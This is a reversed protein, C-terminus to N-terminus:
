AGDTPAEPAELAENLMRHLREMQEQALRQGFISAGFVLSTGLLSVPIGWFGIPPQDIIMQSSGFIAGLFTGFGTVAYLAIFLTWIDPRPSFLAEIRAGDGQPHVELNLQPSWFHHERSPIKIEVHHGRIAMPHGQGPGDEFYRRLRAFVESPEVGAEVEFRPRMRMSVM